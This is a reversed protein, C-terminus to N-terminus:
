GNVQEQETEKPEDGSLPVVDVAYLGSEEDLRTIISHGELCWEYDGSRIFNLLEDRSLLLREGGDPLEPLETPGFKTAETLAYRKMTLYKQRALERETMEVTTELTTTM